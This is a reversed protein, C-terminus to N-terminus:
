RVFPVEAASRTEIHSDCDERTGEADGCRLVGNLLMRDVANCATDRMTFVHVATRGADLEPADTALRQAIIGDPDFVVLDLRLDRFDIRTDNELLLWARCHEGSTELKNLEIALRGDDGAACTSAAPWGAAVAFAAGWFLGSRYM